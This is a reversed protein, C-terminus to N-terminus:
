RLKEILNFVEDLKSVIREQESLPPLPFPFNEIHSNNISPSNDGKMFANLGDIVYPSLMLYLLFRPCLTQNPTLVYFGTSAIADAYTEDVIAVNRLYPRVMSFLVDGVHLKRKARSPAKSTEVQKAKDIKNTTSNVADIDIYTFNAGSPTATEMSILIDRGRVWQWSPPIDFPFESEPTPTIPSPPTAKRRQKTTPTLNAKEKQIRQLLLSAPEDSPDQPVLRGRIAEEILSARLQKSLERNLRDLEDQARGYRDALSLLEEMKSAIRELESLPPLPLLLNFFLDRNLHPIASGKKSGRLMDKYYHIYYLVYAKPLTPVILLQKFTSGMYGDEPVSFLEGSNEGDVLIINDGQKVFRGSGVKRADKRGRLFDVDICKGEGTRKEGDSLVIVSGLRVWEWSPPIDFPLQDDISRQNDLCRSNLDTEVYSGDALRTIRTEPAAKGRQRKGQTLSAKEKRIRELLLSAPEDSPDQPVLRGRIAEEILSARLSKGNM